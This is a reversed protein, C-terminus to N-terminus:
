KKKGGFLGGFLGGGSQDSKSGKPDNKQTGAKGTGQTKMLKELQKKGDLAMSNQPNFKLAQDFEIRAMTLQNQQLYITGLLSHCRSHTPDDKLADRLEKIAAAFQNKAILEEARRCYQEVFPSTAPAASPSSPRTVPITSPATQSRSVVPNSRPVETATTAPASPQQLKGKMERRVLYILNLESIQGTFVLLKELSQYQHEALQQLLTNYTTELDDAQSLQKASESTVVLSQPTRTLYQSKLKLLAGYEARERDNSLKEYAPNVFKSLIEGEQLKEAVNTTGSSDPHLRRAIQLYRTRMAKADTDIPVGLIAHLDTFDSAFLGQKIQFAM